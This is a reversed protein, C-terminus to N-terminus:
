VSSWRWMHGPRVPLWVVIRPPWLAWSCAPAQEPFTSVVHRNGYIVFVNISINIFHLLCSITPQQFIWNVVESSIQITIFQCNLWCCLAQISSHVYRTDRGSAAHKVFQVNVKHLDYFLFNGERKRMQISARSSRILSLLKEASKIETWIILDIGTTQECKFYSTKKSASLTWSNHLHWLSIVSLRLLFIYM